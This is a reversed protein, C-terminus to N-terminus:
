VASRCFLANRFRVSMFNEEIRVRQSEGWAESHRRKMDALIGLWPRNYESM